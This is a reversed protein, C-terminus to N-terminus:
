RRRISARAAAVLVPAARYTYQKTRRLVQTHACMSEPPRASNRQEPTSQVCSTGARCRRPTAHERSTARLRGDQGTGNERLARASGRARCKAAIGRRATAWPAVRGIRERPGNRRVSRELKGSAERRAQRPQRPTGRCLHVSAALRYRTHSSCTPVLPRSVSGRLASRHARRPPPCQECQRQQRRAAHRGHPRMRRCADTLAHGCARQAGCSELRGGEPVAADQERRAERRHRAVSRREFRGRWRRAGRARRKRARRRRRARRRQRRRRGSARAVGVQPQQQTQRHRANTRAEAAASRRNPAM